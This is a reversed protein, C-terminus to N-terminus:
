YPNYFRLYNGYHASNGGYDGTVEPHYYLIGECTNGGYHYTCHHVILQAIIIMICQSTEGLCDSAM